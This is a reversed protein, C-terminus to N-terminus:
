MEVNPRPVQVVTGDELEIRYVLATAGTALQMPREPIELVRGQKGFLAGRVIRLQTGREITSSLSDEQAMSEIMPGVIEPRIVGARVQTTGSMSIERGCLADLVRTVRPSMELAGFGETIMLTFGIDEDGTSAFNIERGVFRNIDAGEISPAIVGAVGVKRFAALGDLTLRGPSYVIQDVYRSDLKEWNSKIAPFDELRSLTGFIEPGIGFVGQVISSQSEILVGKHADVSVVRGGMYALIERSVSQARLLIHGSIGSVSEVIGDIPSSVTTKLMGFLSETSALVQGVRVTDGIEVKMSQVLRSRAIGLSASAGITHVLGPLDARAVVDQAGVRDGKAVNVNGGVPIKRLRKLKTGLSIVLSPSSLRTM